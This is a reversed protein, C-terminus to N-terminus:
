ECMESERELKARATELLTETTSTVQNVFPGAAKRQILMAKEHYEIARRYNGKYQYAIGIHNYPSPLFIHEPSIGELIAIAKQYYEIARDLKDMGRYAIGINDYDQAVHQHNEGKLSRDLRLAEEYCQISKEYQHQRWYQRGSQTLSRRKIANKIWSLFM